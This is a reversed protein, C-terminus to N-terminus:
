SVDRIPDRKQFHLKPMAPIKQSVGHGLAAPLIDIKRVIGRSLRPLSCDDQPTGPLARNEEATQGPRYKQKEGSDEKGTGTM